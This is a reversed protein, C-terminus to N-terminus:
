KKFVMVAIVIEFIIYFLYNLNIYFYSTNFVKHIFYLFFPYLLYFCIIAFVKVLSKYSIIKYFKLIIHKLLIFFLFTSFLPLSYSIEFFLTYLLIYSNVLPRNKNLFILFAIGLFPSLIPYISTLTEYIISLIFLFFEKINKKDFSNRQLYSFTQM